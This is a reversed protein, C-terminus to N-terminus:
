HFLSYRSASPIESSALTSVFTSSSDCLLAFNTLSLWRTFALGLCMILCGLDSDGLSVERIDVDVYSFM